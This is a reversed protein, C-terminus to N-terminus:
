EELMRIIEPMTWVRVQEVDASYNTAENYNSQDLGKMVIEEAQEKNEAEFYSTLVIRDKHSVTDDIFEVRFIAM